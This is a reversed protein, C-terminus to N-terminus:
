AKGASDFLRMMDEVVKQMSIRGIALVDNDLGSGIIEYPNYDDGIKACAQRIANFYTRKLISGVNIKRVGLRIAEKIDARHLSSAGHLVLPISIARKLEELRTLNLRIESRGHLHVQGVNVAIADVGTRNIFDCALQPDTLHLDAPTDFLDGDIGPLSAPEGEVAVSAFHAKKVIRHVSDIQEEIGLKEDSFMVIGFGLDIASSVMDFDPCENFIACSPVSIQNCTELAIAAYLGIRDDVIRGTHCLNVGSFGLIVTSRTAEAADAIAQLSEMNWSEFYGVAYQGSEAKAMLENFSVFM